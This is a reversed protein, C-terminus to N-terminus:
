LIYLKIILYKCFIVMVTYTMDHLYYPTNKAHSNGVMKLLIKIFFYSKSFNQVIKSKANWGRPNGVLQPSLFLKKIVLLYYVFM